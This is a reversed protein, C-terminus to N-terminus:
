GFLFPLFQAAGSILSNFSNQNGIGQKYSGEGMVAGLINKLQTMVDASHEGGSILNNLGSMYDTNIGMIDQFYKDMDKSSIDQANKQAQLQFPTSGTMGTNSAENISKNMSEQQQYKAYPSENYGGMISNFYAQPDAMQALRAQYPSLSNVGADYFPKQYGGAQNSYKSYQSMGKGYPDNSFGFLGQLINTLASMNNPNGVFSKMNKNSGLALGQGPEPYLNSDHSFM